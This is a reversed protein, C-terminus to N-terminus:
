FTTPSEGGFIGFTPSVRDLYHNFANRVVVEAKSQLLSAFDQLLFELHRWILLTQGLPYLLVFGKASILPHPRIRHFHIARFIHDLTDSQSMFLEIIEPIMPGFSPEQQLFKFVFIESREFIEQIRDARLSGVLVKQFPLPHWFHSALKVPSIHDDLGLLVKSVRQGSESQLPSPGVLEPM